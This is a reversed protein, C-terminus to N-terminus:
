ACKTNGAAIYLRDSIWIHDEQKKGNSVEDSSDNIQQKKESKNPSLTWKMQPVM